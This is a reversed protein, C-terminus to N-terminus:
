AAPMSPDSQSHGIWSWRPTSEERSPIISPNESPLIQISFTSKPPVSPDSGQPHLSSEFCREIQPKRQHQLLGHDLRRGVQPLRHVLEGNSHERTRRALDDRVAPLGHEAITVPLSEEGDEVVEVGFGVLGQFGSGCPVLIVTALAAPPLQIM